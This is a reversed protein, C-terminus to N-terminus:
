GGSAIWDGALAVCRVDHSHQSRVNTRVWNKWEGGETVPAWEFQVLIPDVGAAFISSGDMSM